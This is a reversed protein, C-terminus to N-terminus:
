PPPNTTEPPAKQYTYLEERFEPKDILGNLPFQHTQPFEFYNAYDTLFAIYNERPHQNQELNAIFTECSPLEIYSLSYPNNSLGDFILITGNKPFLWLPYTFKTISQLTEPSQKTLFGRNKNLHAVAFIAAAEQLVSNKQQWFPLSYCKAPSNLM